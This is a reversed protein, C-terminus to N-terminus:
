MLTSIFCGGGGGGGGSSKKKKEPKQYDCDVYYDYGDILKGCANESFDSEVTETFATLAFYYFDKKDLGVFTWKPSLPNDLETEDVDDIWTYSGNDNQIYLSYGIIEPEESPDWILTVSPLLSANVSIAIVVAMIILMIKRIMKRDEM